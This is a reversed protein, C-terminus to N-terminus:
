GRRNRIERVEGGLIEVAKRIAPNELLEAPAPPPAPPVSTEEVAEVSVRMPQGFFERALDELVSLTERRALEKRSFEKAVGIVLRGPAEVLARAQSLTLFLSIRTKQM